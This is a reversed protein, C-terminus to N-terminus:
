VYDGGTHMEQNLRGIPYEYVRQMTESTVQGFLEKVRDQLKEMSELEVGKRKTELDGFLLFDCPSIDPSYPLQPAHRFQSNPFCNETLAPQHLAANDLHVTPRPSGAGRGLHLVQSFSELIKECFYGRNFKEGPQLWDIFIVGHIGIFVTAMTKPATIM